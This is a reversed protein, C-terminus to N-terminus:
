RKVITMKIILESALYLEYRHKDGNTNPECVIKHKKHQGKLYLYGDKLKYSFLSDKFYGFNFDPYVCLTGGKRFEFVPLASDYIAKFDASPAKTVSSIKYVGPRIADRDSCSFILCLCVILLGTTSNKIKKKM